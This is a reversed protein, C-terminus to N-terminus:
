REETSNDKKQSRARARYMVLGIYTEYPQFSIYFWHGM